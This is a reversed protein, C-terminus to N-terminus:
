EPKTYKYFTDRSKKNKKNWTEGEIVEGTITAQCEWFKNNCEFYVNKGDQKWTGNRYSKGRYCYALVGGKEFRYTTVVKEMSDLGVWETDKLNIVKEEEPDQDTASARIAVLTFLLGMAAAMGFMRERNM